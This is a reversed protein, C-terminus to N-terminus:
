RKAFKTRNNCSPSKTKSMPHHVCLESSGYVGVARVHIMRAGSASSYPRRRRAPFRSRQILICTCLQSTLEYMHVDCYTSSSM